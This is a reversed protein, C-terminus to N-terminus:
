SQLNPDKALFEAFKEKLEAVDEALKENSTALQASSVLMGQIKTEIRTVRRAVYTSHRALAATNVELNDLRASEEPTLQSRDASAFTRAARKLKRGASKAKAVGLGEHDRAEAVRYGVGRVNALTRSHDLELKKAVMYIPSRAFERGLAEGMQEYTVVTGPPKGEFLPMLMKWEPLEAKPVFPEM